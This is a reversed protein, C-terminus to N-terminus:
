KVHVYLNLNFNNFVNRILNLVEPWSLQQPKCDLQAIALDTINYNECHKKLNQLCSQLSLYSPKHADTEKTVLSYIFRNNSVDSITLLSGIDLDQNELNYPPINFDLKQFFSNPNSKSVTDAVSFKSNELNERSFFIKLSDDVLAKMGSQKQLEAKEKKQRTRRKAVVVLDLLPSPQKPLAQSTSPSSSSQPTTNLLQNHAEESRKIDHKTARSPPKGFALRATNDRCSQIIISRKENPNKFYLKGDRIGLKSTTPSTTHKTEPHFTVTKRRTAAIPTEATNPMPIRTPRPERQEPTNDVEFTPRIKDHITPMQPQRTEFTQPFEAFPQDDADPIADNDNEEDTIPELEEDLIEQDIIDPEDAENEDNVPDPFELHPGGGPEAHDAPAAPAPPPPVPPMAPPVVPPPLVPAPPVPPIAVQFQIATTLQADDEEQEAQEPVDTMFTHELLKPIENDFLAPEQRYKGLVPDPIFKEQDINELDIPPESPSYARLRIRHICQTFYTGVKRILYNSDTLVKEVRYLPLWVNMSKSGFDNQNTLKPNLILCYSHLKLPHALAKEDYYKRYQHYSHILRSKTEAFKQQMADQLEIVFDSKPDLRKIATNSFRLDLPKIPERGHFIATPTCGISSYYSTNHIYAALPVYKHWNSWQHNTNLKLIRKLAGHAREVVGVSQAHKLSAHKIKVELLSALEHMLESVLSTGLDSVITKPIYSHEFFISSLEHALKQANVTTLPVAFLYKSFVDIGTLVYKYLPSQFPGVIDIQMMDGPYSQLSSVPQLFPRLSKNSISKQQICTLCNKIMQVFYETFGPFYFRNRFENITRQIGIHGAIPSNHLRYVTEKWLHKPLCYQLNAVKGAHDFFQRYLIEDKLILRQFQKAYKKLEFSQYNLDVPQGEKKWKIVERITEDKMQEDLLNLPTMRDHLDNLKDAPDPMLVANIETNKLLFRVFGSIEENETVQNSQQIQELIANPIGTQKLQNIVNEDLIVKFLHDFDEVANMLVDPTKAMTEIEIEKVPIHDTLKLEIAQDPDTQIRSLFDAAYNARGPIHAIVLNFSLLRDLLNWLSPPITKSQFFQVLSKNDTLIIVPKETGWIFHSFHDLAFYLGLFEKYYTSFKLQAENFLKTGFAVPAYTKREKAKQDKVYDEIMLVFGAGYYSADCLLVYQMGPKALRLTLETAKVLDDKLTKLSKKHDDTIYHEVNKRLLKYFPLLKEGLNPIFDRWFQLFGVLRKVQKVTKPMTLKSLFKAIREKEPQIGKPTIVKGLFTIEQVGFECKSPSLKLGSKRVCEFIKRLNPILEHFSDVASGIDDMYQTCINAALCPDLYHRIFSSFGTVSKSLGQALCKYAYTRSAFNFALLQVSLDDAMQVCHYAQSCDLKNFLKKGAFHNSADSMNSIPFNTNIYDNRLLHNIRRLDILIRLRGSAKRQAFVPSSYKSHSLTTILGYYHMLALEVILENRLHIPTQPSQVYVPSNHEPTLKIKLETNYGVDFRHKAFIDSFETLLNQVEVKQDNSLVSKEWKFNALFTQKHVENVKPDIKELGQFHQIQDFIERQLPPLLHPNPCTEPTPFWLKEYEPGPRKKSEDNSCEIQILQNLGNEIDDPDRQKALAILQPDISILKEAQAQSLIEFSAVLTNAKLHVYHDTINIASIYLKGDKEATSLSSTLAIETSQEFEDNPIVVGSCESFSESNDKLSCELIQHSNPPLAHKKNLFIPIKKLKKLYFKSKGKPKIENLQVTLNPLKLLNFAPCIWIFNKKFFPNGIIVSNMTPLVLFTDTFEHNTIDFTIKVAKSINIPAGSALKVNKFSPSTFEFKANSNQLQELLNEPIANACSGTDILAKRRIKNDFLINVYSLFEGEM